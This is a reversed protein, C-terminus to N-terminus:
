PTVVVPGKYTEWYVPKGDIIEPYIKVTVPLSFIADEGETVTGLTDIQAYNKSIMRKLTDGVQLQAAIRFRRQLDRGALDGTYGGSAFTIGTTDYRLGLTEPNDELATFTRTIVLNKRGTAIVGVGWGFFDQSDNAQDETFGASGDLIGAFVWPDTGTLAFDEGDAPSDSTVAGILVDADPFLTVNTTDGSM